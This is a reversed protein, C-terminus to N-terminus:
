LKGAAVDKRASCHSEVLFLLFHCFKVEVFTDDLM